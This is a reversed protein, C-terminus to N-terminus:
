GGCIITQAAAYRKAAEGITTDGLEIGLIAALIQQQVELSAQFGGDLEMRLAQRITDLPAEINTGHRQDGVMALFPKNAPLVAGEALYPITPLSVTSASISFTKGGLGPVWSPITVKYANLTRVMANIGSEVARLATNLLAILGNASTRFFPTIQNMVRQLDEGIAVFGSRVELFATHLGNALTKLRALGEALLSGLTNFIGMQEGTGFLAEKLSQLKQTFAAVKSDGGQLKETLASLKDTLLGLAGLIVEGTWKGLPLLLENLLWSLLPKAAVLVADLARFAAALTDLFAPLLQQASWAAIPVLINHWAWELGDFLSRTIPEIAEKLRTFANAAASFDIDQLPKLITKIKEVLPRLREPLTLVEGPIITTGSGSSGQLRQIQDFSALTRKVASGTTRVTKDASKRTFGFLEALVATADNVLAIISHIARNVPPVLVAAIPAFCRELAAKLKGLSLRLILLQTDLDKLAQVAEGEDGLLLPITENTM